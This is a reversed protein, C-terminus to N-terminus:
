VAIKWHDLRTDDHFSIEHYRDLHDVLGEYNWGGKPCIICYKDSVDATEALFSAKPINDVTIVPRTTSM